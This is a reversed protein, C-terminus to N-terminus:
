GEEECRGCRARLEDRESALKSAETRSDINGFDYMENLEVLREREEESLPDLRTITEPKPSVPSWSVFEKKDDSLVPDRSYNETVEPIGEKYTVWLYKLTHPTRNILVATGPQNPHNDKLVQEQKAQEEKLVIMQANIRILENMALKSSKAGM